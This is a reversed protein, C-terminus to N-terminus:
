WDDKYITELSFLHPTFSNLSSYSLRYNYRITLDYSSIADLM